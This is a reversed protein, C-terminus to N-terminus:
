LGLASAANERFLDADRVYSRLVAVSRHGTQKAIAAESAGAIAASTVLGSRLSHAGFREPDLGAALAYEHVLLRVVQATLRREGVRGGKNVARFLPGTMLNAADMWEKVALVPCTEPHRGCPIAVRRGAGVQDTKSRRLLITLGKRGIEVDEVDLAVIESRRCGSSFGLLLVARDRTGRLNDDIVDLMARLDDVLIPAKGKAAIGKERVIGAMVSAAPERGVPSEHGAARHAATIAALRRRLTAVSLTDARQSLYLALQGPTSPMPDLGRESCWANFDNWDARYARRTNEAKSCEAFHRAREIDAESIEVPTTVILASTM